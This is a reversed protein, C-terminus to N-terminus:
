YLAEGIEKRTDDTIVLVSEEKKVGLCSTLVQEAIKVLDKM